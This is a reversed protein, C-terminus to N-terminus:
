RGRGGDRGGDRPPPNAKALKIRKREAFQSGKDKQKSPLSHGMGMRM